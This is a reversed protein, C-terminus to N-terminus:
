EYEVDIGLREADGIARQVEIHGLDRAAVILGDVRPLRLCSCYDGSIVVGSGHCYDCDLVAEALEMLDLPEEGTWELARRCAGHSACLRDLPSTTQNKGSFLGERAEETGRVTLVATPIEAIPKDYGETNVTLARMEFTLDPM